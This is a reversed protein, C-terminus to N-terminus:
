SKGEWIARLWDRVEVDRAYGDELHKLYVDYAALRVLTRAELPSMRQGKQGTLYGVAFRVARSPSWRLVLFSVQLVYHALDLYPMSELSGCEWDVAGLTGEPGQLVNWPALDGHQIVVPWDRGSLAELWPALDLESRERIDRTWPHIEVPLSPSVVLKRLFGTVDDLARLNAPLHKGQLPTSVLAEGDGLVGHKLPDPGVGEPLRTLMRYEQCLRRLAPEEEAYKIYGLVRGKSDCLRATIKQVPSPEGVLVTVSVSRPLVDQAFEGFLWSDARAVRVVPLGTAARTRLLLRYLRGRLRSAPYFASKVWRESFSRAPVYLRPNDWNPLALVRTGRPFFSEWGIM